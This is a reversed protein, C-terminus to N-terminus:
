REEEAARRAAAGVWGMRRFWLMMALGVVLMIALCVYYGWESELEPMHKFNMGYVGAIFTLPIFITSIITLVKMIENMKFSVSSLYIETLGTGLERYTEVLDMIQVTHDYCDRLYIRTEDAICPLPDRILGNIADRLPWIARRLILLERKVDHVREATSRAPRGLVEDELDELLEGYRELVPFYADVVADLLAYALYDPGASRIRGVGRRIRERVPDFWDGPTEQFTILFDPGLFMSLQETGLAETCAVMRAVVFLHSGYGEVKARQHTNVVDELALRHLGFLTGIRRIQDLDALGDVNVWTVRDKRACAEIQGLGTIETETTKDHGFCFVQIRSQHAQPDATLTGPSSGPPARLHIRLAKDETARKRRDTRSM